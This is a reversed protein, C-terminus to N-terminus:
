ELLRTEGVARARHAAKKGALVALQGTFAGRPHTVVEAEAGEEVRSIRIAGDLVVYFSDVRDDERFLYEGDELVKEASHGSLYEIQEDTLSPFDAPDDRERM